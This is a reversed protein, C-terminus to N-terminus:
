AVTMSSGVTVVANQFNYGTQNSGISRIQAQLFEASFNSAEVIAHIEGTSNNKIEYMLPQTFELARLLADKSANIRNTTRLGYQLEYGDSFTGLVEALLQVQGVSAGSDTSFAITNVIDTGVWNGVITHPQLEIKPLEDFVCPRHGVYILYKGGATVQDGPVTFVRSAHAFTPIIDGAGKPRTYMSFFPRSVISDLTVVAYASLNNVSISNVGTGDYFYWNIKRLQGVPVPNNTYYWGERGQPDEVGPQGNSYVISYTELMVTDSLSQLSTGLDIKIAVTNFKSVIGATTLLEQESASSNKSIGPM